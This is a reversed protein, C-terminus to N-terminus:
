TQQAPAAGAQALSALDEPSLVRAVDLLIIFGDDVRAMGRIFDRRLAAGFSPAPEIQAADLDLVANVADVLVGIAQGDLDLIIICTRARIETPERGFRQALDIVPVVHGRLNIVGHVFAPMMPITTPATYEIIERVGLIEVGYREGKLSFTLCQGGAAEARGPVQIQAILPAQGPNAAQHQVPLNM